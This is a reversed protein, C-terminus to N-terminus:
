RYLRTINIKEDDEGGGGCGIKLIIIILKEILKRETSLKADGPREKERM